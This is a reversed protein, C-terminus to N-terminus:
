KIMWGRSFRQVERFAANGESNERQPMSDSLPLGYRAIGELVAQTYPVDGSNRFNVPFSDPRLNGSGSVAKGSLFAELFPSTLIHATWLSRDPGPSEPSSEALIFLAKGGGFTQYYVAGIPLSRAEEGSLMWPSGSFTIHIVKGDAAPLPFNRDM